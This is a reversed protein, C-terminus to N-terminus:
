VGVQYSFVLGVHGVYTDGGNAPSSVKITANFDVGAVKDPSLAVTVGTRRKQAVEEGQRRVEWQPSMKDSSPMFIAVLLEIQTIFRTVSETLDDSFIDILMADSIHPRDCGVVEPCADLM